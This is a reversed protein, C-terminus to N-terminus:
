LVEKRFKFEIAGNGRIVINNEGVNLEFQYDNTTGKLVNYTANGKIIKMDASSIIIPTVNVSGQNYITIQLEDKVTFATEQLCDMEFNFSDWLLEGEYEDHIKFPYATFVVRMKGINNIEEFEVESCEAMYHYSPLNDDRLITKENAMLLWEELQMRKIELRESSTAKVLFEYELIREQFCPGNYLNSFDYSGQMFPVTAFIKKKAPSQIIRTNLITVGFNRFSHKERYTIGYM